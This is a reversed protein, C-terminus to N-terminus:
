KLLGKLDEAAKRPDTSSCIASVVAVSDAGAEFAQRANSPNMGGIAILPKDTLGKIEKIGEFGWTTVTNTKTATKFIPSLGLHHTVNMQLRELQNKYELSWGIKLQNGYKEVIALPQTDSLGVHVGWAQIEVAIDPADNIILPVQYHDTIRKLAKAKDLYESHSIDKERLQIIDVGGIIAEEAVQLWDMNVCDKESIVLYLPYPFDPHIPM